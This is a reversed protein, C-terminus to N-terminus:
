PFYHRIDDATRDQKFIDWYRAAPFHERSQPNNPDSYSGKLSAAKMNTVSSSRLDSISSIRDGISREPDNPM